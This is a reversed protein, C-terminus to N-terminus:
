KKERSPSTAGQPGLGKDIYWNQCFPVGKMNRRTVFLVGTVYETKVAAFASDKFYSYIVIGCRKRSGKVALFRM